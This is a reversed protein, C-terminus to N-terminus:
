VQKYGREQYVLPAALRSAVVAAYDVSSVRQLSLLWYSEEFV